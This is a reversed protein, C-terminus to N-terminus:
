NSSSGGAMLLGIEERSASEGDLTAVVVGEYVVAIRDSLGLIEDLEASVLLVGRGQDRQHVLQNHIFEISGVDVGRTPQSAVILKNDVSLERAVIVKQKNGGSLSKVPSTITRPRVDFKEILQRAWKRIESVVRIGKSAFPEKFYTNLVMNDAVSYNDVLGDKERDEPIHAVGWESVDRPSDNTMDVGGFLISGSESRRIGTIAEVLERQGNGEVGAIGLIEGQRVEFSMGEVAESGRDDKVRLDRVELVPSGPHAEGKDVRLVVSRGVMMEALSAQTSDATEASGIYKGNRLVTVRDTVALVERLKHTIFIIGVGTEALSRMVKLLEDTEKPTLVATPEDLILLRAGRNLAKLIEVRQQVGVPLDEVVASPDVKLGFRESLELVQAEAESINMVGVVSGPGSQPVVEAGLMINEAVTLPPVLQFHQHVMGIGQAIADGPGDIDALQGDFYIEGSDPEYIGFLMKVLTSKGAGNEGLLGVIEGKNLTLDVDDCAVVPGFTKTLGKMQLLQSM